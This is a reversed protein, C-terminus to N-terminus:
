SVKDLKKAKNKFMNEIPTPNQQMLERYKPEDILESQLLANLAADYGLRVIQESNKGANDFELTDVGFPKQPRITVVKIKKKGNFPRYKNLIEAVEDSSDEVHKETIQTIEAAIERLKRAEPSGAPLAGAVQLVAAAKDKLSTAAQGIKGLAEQVSINVVDWRELAETIKQTTRVDMKATNDLVINLTKIGVAGIDANKETLEPQPAEEQPQLLVVFLLGEQLDRNIAFLADVGNKAPTNNGAGGDVFLENDIQVAPFAVPISTSSIVADEFNERTLEFLKYIDNDEYKPKLAKYLAPTAYLGEKGNNLATVGFMLETKHPNDPDLIKEPHVQQRVLDRLPSNDLLSRIKLGNKLGLWNLIQGVGQGVMKVIRKKYVKGKEISSWVDVCNQVDGEALAAANLAGVSTGVIVDPMMGAKALACAVGAEFVGKAGGGSLVWGITDVEDINVKTRNLPDKPIEDIARGRFSVVNKRYDNLQLATNELLMTEKSKM